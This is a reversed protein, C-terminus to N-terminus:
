YFTSLNVTECPRTTKDIDLKHQTWVTQRHRLQQTEGPVTQVDEERRRRDTMEAHDRDITVHHEIERQSVTVHRVLSEGDDLDRDDPDHGEANGSREENQRHKVASLRYVVVFTVVDEDSDNNQERMKVPM